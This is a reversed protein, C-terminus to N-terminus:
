PRTTFTQLPGVTRGHANEAVVRFGYTTRPVLGTLAVQVGREFTVAGLEVPATAGPTPGGVHEVWATTAVGHPHVRLDVRASTSTVGTAPLPRVGPPGPTHFWGERVTRGETTATVSWVYRTAPQLGAVPAAIEQAGQRPVLPVTLEGAAGADTRWAIEATGPLGGTDVWARLRVSTPGLGDALTGVVQPAAAVRVTARDVATAGTADTVRLTATWTGPAYVHEVRASPHGTGSTSTGDGHDLQWATVGAGPAAGTGTSAALDFAVTRSSPVADAPGTLWASPRARLDRVGERYAATAAGSTGLRWDCTGVTDFYVAAELQPWAALHAFADRLWRARRQPDAPDEVSGWEPLVALKDHVAAFARLNATADALSRWGTPVNARCGNWNYVDAGIRDVVDDGPYFGAGGPDSVPRSVASPTVVWTWLANTVGEARLVAVWHRWAAVFQEGTGYTAPAIDAEHHLTLYVVPGLRAAQRAHARIQEDLEGAAIRAWTLDTGDLLRPLVSVMPVRGRAAADAVAPADLRDDWRLYVRQVDLRRGLATEYAAAAAASTAYEGRPVFAGVLPVGHVARPDPGVAPALSAAPAPGASAAPAPDASVAPSPGDPSVSSAATLAVVLTLGLM